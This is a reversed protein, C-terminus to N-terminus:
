PKTKVRTVKIPPLDPQEEGNVTREVSHFMFTDADIPTMINTATLTRGDPATGRATIVWKKGDRTIDASGIGGSDEFTWQQLEGNAPDRVIMQTGTHTAGDQVVSFTCRIFAKNATWEYKTSVTVGTRKAEWTGILWELDRLTLGDSAWERAIAIRWAGDERAYLLSCKSVILEAGKSKRLKFHGEVVATEKSPFRVSEVEIELSHGKNKAFFETYAKELAARGRYTTGEDDTYEGETTWSGAVAKADGSRFAAVFGDLAKQVSEKDTPRDDPAAGTTEAVPEGERAPPASRAPEGGSFALWLAGTALCGYFLVTIRTQKRSM